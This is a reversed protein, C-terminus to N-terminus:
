SKDKSGKNDSQQGSYNGGGSGSSASGSGGLGLGPANVAPGINMRIEHALARALHPSFQLSAPSSDGLVCGMNDEDGLDERNLPQGTVCRKMFYEFAMLPNVDKDQAIIETKYPDDNFLLPIQYAQDIRGTKLTGIHIRTNMDLLANFEPDVPINMDMFDMDVFELTMMGSEPDFLVGAVKNGIQDTSILGAEGEQTFLLDINM